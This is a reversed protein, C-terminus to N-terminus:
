QRSWSKYMNLLAIIGMFTTLYIVPTVLLLDVRIPIDVTKSWFYMGVEYIGYIGWIISPWLLGWRLKNSGGRKLDIYAYLGFLFAPLFALYPIAVCLRIPIFFINLLIPFIDEM